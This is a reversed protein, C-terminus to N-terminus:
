LLSLNGVKTRKIHFTTAVTGLKEAIDSVFQRVYFGSSVKLEITDITFQTELNESLVEKWKEIIEEQRFDGSVLSINTVIYRLLNEGSIMRRSIYQTQLLEVEHKPIEIQSLKGERALQFLPVGGVPKSSYAPYKQEFKGM